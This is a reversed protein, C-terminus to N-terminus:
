TENIIVYDSVWTVFYDFASTSLATKNSKLLYVSKLIYIFKQERISIM